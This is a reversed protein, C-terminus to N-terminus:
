VVSGAYGGCGAIRCDEDIAPARLAVLDRLAASDLEMAYRLALEDEFTASRSAKEAAIAEIEAIEEQISRRDTRATM